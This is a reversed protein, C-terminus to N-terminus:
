LKNNKYLMQADYSFSLLDEARYLQQVLGLRMAPTTPKPKPRGKFKKKNTRENTMCYNFYVRKIELIKCMWEPNYGAYANWRRSNTGSTVPREFMNLHRRIIQFWNDVGHLSAADVLDAVKDLAMNTVNTLPLIGAFRSNMNPSVIWESRTGPMTVRNFIQEQWLLKLRGSKNLKPFEKQLELDKQKLREATSKDLLQHGGSREAYVQFANLKGIAIWDDFVACIAMKFGADNDAYLNINWCPSLMKKLLAFHSLISYTQQVLLGKTPIQMQVDADGNSQENAEQDSLIYQAYRRYYSEKQYEKKDKHEKKIDAFDSTFDFNINSVFIYGTDNDATSTNVIPTPMPMNHDGWNSLCHQRDCSLNLSKSALTFELKQKHYEEFALAQEYFFDIKSYIVKASIRFKEEARNIIGKNMLDYFFPLNIDRLYHRQQPDLKVSFRSKCSKCEIRQSGLKEEATVHSVPKSRKGISRNKSHFITETPKTKGSLKYLEPFSFIGKDVNECKPKLRAIGKRIEPSKPIFYYREGYPKEPDATNTCSPEKQLGILSLREIEKAFSRNNIMITSHSCLKCTLLLENKDRNTTLKYDNGLGRNLKRDANYTPNKAAIGFNTCESNKCFNVQLYKGTERVKFARPITIAKTTKHSNLQPTAALPSLEDNTLKFYLEACLSADIYASHVSRHSIDIGYRRCASDQSISKINFKEKSLKMACIVEACLSNVTSPYNIRNLEANLFKLDFDANFIVLKSDKVISIFQQHVDKFLPKDILIESSIKHVNFAGDTSKKGEPNLQVNFVNGTPRQDRYEICALEIVRHGGKQPDLGTTECDLFVYKTM